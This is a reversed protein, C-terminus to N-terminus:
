DEYRKFHQIHDDDGLVMCIPGAGKESIGFIGNILGLVGVTPFEDSIYKRVQITKHNMLKKTCKIRTKFMEEISKRDTKLADNLLDIAEKVSVPPFELVNQIKKSIVKPKPM